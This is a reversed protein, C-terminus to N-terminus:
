ATALADLFRQFALVNQKQLLRYQVCMAMRPTMAAGGGGAGTGAGAGALLAEDEEITTAFGAPWPHL